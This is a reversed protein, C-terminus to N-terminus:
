PKKISLEHMRKLHLRMTIQNYSSDHSHNNSQDDSKWNKFITNITHLITIKSLLGFKINLTNKKKKKKEM